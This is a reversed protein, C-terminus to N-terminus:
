SSKLKYTPHSYDSIRLIATFRIKNKSSNIGSEHVLRQSFVLVEEVKMSRIENWEFKINQDILGDKQSYNKKTSGPVFRLCGLESNVDQLPIWVTISNISGLNYPYDQHRLFRLKEENPLDCRLIPQAELIPYKLGWSEARTKWLPQYAALKLLSFSNRLMKIGEHQIKQHNKYFKCIDEDNVVSGFNFKTKKFLELYTNKIELNLEQILPLLGDIKIVEYEKM